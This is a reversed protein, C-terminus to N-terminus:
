NWQFVKYVMAPIRKSLEGPLERHKLFITVTSCFFNRTWHLLQWSKSAVTNEQTFWSIHVLILENWCPFYQPYLNPPNNEQWTLWTNSQWIKEFLVIGDLYFLLGHTLYRAVWLPVQVQSAITKLYCFNYQLLATKCLVQGHKCWIRFFLMRM